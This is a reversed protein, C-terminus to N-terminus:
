VHVFVTKGSVNVGFVRQASWLESMSRHINTDPIRFGMDEFYDNIEKVTLGQNTEKLVSQIAWKLYKRRVQHRELLIKILVAQDIPM